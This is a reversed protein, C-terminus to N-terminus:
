DIDNASDMSDSFTYAMGEVKQKVKQFKEWLISPQKKPKPKKPKPVAKGFEEPPILVNDVNATIQEDTQKVEQAEDQVTAIPETSAEGKIISNIADITADSTTDQTKTYNVDYEEGEGKEGEEVYEQEEEIRIPENLCNLLKDNKATLVMGISTAASTEYIGNCGLASFLHRPYGTRVNYGSLDKIYNTINTLNAGGGTIVVGNRLDDAFGSEQIEWLVANIIENVRATIIESLYKVPLQKQPVDNEDNIQLIKEGLNLLKDPMCAGYALKINEALRETIGCESRIDNTITKGGFPIAAYHRMIKGKYVTVSTSGAGFDILAVGNEMEEENLVAKAIVEPTFFKRAIAIGLDNMIVDINNVARKRGVFIKFNGDLTDSVMGVIDSEVQQFCDETSFNQAVAGYVIENKSDNLPYSALALDKLNEVEEETICQSGDNRIMKATASEQKVSYKPLGVVVQMIKIRLDREAQEIAEQLPKEVKKPNFVYSNRIGDSPTERYYVIQVDDGSIRAVTLAIKSSGADISAIYREEM